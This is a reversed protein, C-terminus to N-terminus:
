SLNSFLLSKNLYEVRPTFNLEGILKLYNDETEKLGKTKMITVLMAEMVNTGFSRGELEPTTTVLISAGRAKLLEVDEKTVTNTIIIKGKINNPLYMKIYHFDGAIIEAEDYYKRLKETDNSGQKVGTPYLMDFPLRCVIPAICTAIRQLAKLTYIPIGVGLAFMLDGIVLKGGLDKIANAMGYRDMASTILVKKDRFDIISNHQLYNIVIGELTNKLGSGDVMPTTGAALKIKEADKIIYRKKGAWVYLDIGGMGFADVKGKLAKVLEVARSMSGDTGIREIQFIQDHFNVLVRHDRKSSGLSVSVVRKM